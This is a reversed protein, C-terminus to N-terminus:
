ISFYKDRKISFALLIVVNTAYMFHIPENLIIGKGLHDHRQKILLCFGTDLIGGLKSIADSERM